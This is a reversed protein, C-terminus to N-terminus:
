NLGQILSVPKNFRDIIRQLIAMNTQDKLGAALSKLYVPNTFIQNRVEDLSKGFAQDFAIGLLISMEMTSEELDEIRKLGAENM